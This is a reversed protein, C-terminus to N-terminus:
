MLGMLRWIAVSLVAAIVTWIAFAIATPLAQARTFLTRGTSVELALYNTSQYPLFFSNCAIVAILGVIFPHIGAASAVPALAITVLPAAAQFRLVFSLAFCLLSLVIVFAVRSNSLHDMIGSNAVRGAVWRDLGTHSFVTALSILVGFLLAFNWNVNRLTDITVARTASIVIPMRSGGMRLALLVM